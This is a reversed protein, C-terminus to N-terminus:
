ESAPCTVSVHFCLRLLIKREEYHFNATQADPRAQKRIWSDSRVTSIRVTSVTVVFASQLYYQKDFNYLKQQQTCLGCLPFISMTNKLHFGCHIGNFVIASWNMMEFLLSYIGCSFHRFMCGITTQVILRDAIRINTFISVQYPNAGSKLDKGSLSSTKYNNTTKMMKGQGAFAIAIPIHIYPVEWKEVM